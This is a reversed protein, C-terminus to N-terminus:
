SVASLPPYHPGGSCHQGGSLARRSTEPKVFLLKYVAGNLIQGVPVYVSCPNGLSMKCLYASAFIFALFFLFEFVLVHGLSCGGALGPGTTKLTGFDCATAFVLLFDTSMIPRQRLLRLARGKAYPSCCSLSSSVPM